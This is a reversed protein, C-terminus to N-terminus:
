FFNYINIFHTRSSFKQSGVGCKSNEMTLLILSFNSSFRVLFSNKNSFRGKQSKTKKDIKNPVM